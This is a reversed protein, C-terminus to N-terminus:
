RRCRRRSASCRWRRGSSCRPCCTSSMARASTSASRAPPPGGSTRASSRSRRGSRARRWRRTRRPASCRGRRAATAPRAQAGLRRGLPGGRRAVARAEVVAARRHRVIAPLRRRRAPTRQSIGSGGRRSMWRGGTRRRGRCRGSPSRTALPASVAHGGCRERYSGFAGALSSLGGSELRPREDVEVSPADTAMTVGAQAHPEPTPEGAGRVGAAANQLTSDRAESKRQSSHVGCHAYHVTRSSSGSTCARAITYRCRCRM